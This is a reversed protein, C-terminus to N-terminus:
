QSDTLPACLQLVLLHVVTHHIFSVFDLRWTSHVYTLYGIYVSQSIEVRKRVKYCHGSSEWVNCCGQPRYTESGSQVHLHLCLLLHCRKFDTINSLKQQRLPKHNTTYKATISKSQVGAHCGFHKLMELMAVCIGTCESPTLLFLCMPM